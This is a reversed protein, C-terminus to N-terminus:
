VDYGFERALLRIPADRPTQTFVAWSRPMIGHERALNQMNTIAARKVQRAWDRRAQEEYHALYGTLSDEPPKQQQDLM